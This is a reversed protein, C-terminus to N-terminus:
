NLNDQLVTHKKEGNIWGNKQANVPCESLTNGIPVLHECFHMVGTTQGGFAGWVYVAGLRLGNGPLLGHVGEVREETSTTELVIAEQM